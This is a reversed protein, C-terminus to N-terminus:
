LSKSFTNIIKQLYQKFSDPGIVTLDDMLGLVFRGAGVFGAVPAHFYYDKERKEIFPVSLPYEERLLLYARMGLSLSIWENADGNFGFIDSQNKQHQSEFQFKKDTELIEGIRDLKFQKSAKDNTDLAIVSQYNDGFHIPEVIRDRIENSHASHYNKLVVQKKEKIAEALVDVFKGLRAKVFLRPVSDIESNLALKKLLLNKLPNDGAGSQILKKILKTEEMSFQSQSPDDESTVIFYRNDFDKEILFEVEELLNIYRYITRESTDFREALQKITWHGSKLVAIIQFLRLLKAQPIISDKKASVKKKM